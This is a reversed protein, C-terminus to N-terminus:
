SLACSSGHLCIVNSFLLPKTQNSQGLHSNPYVEKPASTGPCSFWELACLAEGDTKQACAFHWNQTLRSAVICSRKAGGCAITSDYLWVLALWSPLWLSLFVSSSCSIPLALQSNSIYFLFVSLCCCLVSVEHCLAETSWLKCQWHKRVFFYIANRQLLLLM